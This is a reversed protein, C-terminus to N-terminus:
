KQVRKKELLDKVNKIITKMDKIHSIDADTKIIENASM